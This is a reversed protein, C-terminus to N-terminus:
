LNELEDFNDIQDVIQNLNPFEDQDCMMERVYRATRVTSGFQNIDEVTLVDSWDSIKLLISSLDFLGSIPLSKGPNLLAKLETTEAMLRSIQNFDTIPKTQKIKELGPLSSTYTSLLDIIKKYELVKFTHTNM